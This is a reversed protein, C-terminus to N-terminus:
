NFWSLKERCFKKLKPLFTSYLYMTEMAEFYNCNEGEAIIVGELSKRFIGNNEIFRWFGAGSGGAISEGSTNPVRWYQISSKEDFKPMEGRGLAVYTDLPGDPRNKGAGKCFAWFIQRNYLELEENADLDYFSSNVILEHSPLRQNIGLAIFALDPRYGENPTSHFRELSAILYIFPFTVSCALTDGKQLKSLGLFQSSGNRGFKLWRAVHAATLIGYVVMGEQITFRVFTGSGDPPPSLKSPDGPSDGLSVHHALIHEFFDEPLEELVEQTTKVAKM